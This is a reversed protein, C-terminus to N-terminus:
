PITRVVKKRIALYVLSMIGAGDGNSRDSNAEDLRCLIGLLMLSVMGGCRGIGRGEREGQGTERLLASLAMRDEEDCEPPTQMYSDEESIEDWGYCGDFYFAMYREAMLGMQIGGERDFPMSTKTPTVDDEDPGLGIRFDRLHPLSTRFNDLFHHWRKPYSHFYSDEMIKGIFDTKTHPYERQEM